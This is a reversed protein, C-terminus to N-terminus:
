TVVASRVSVPLDRYVVYHEGNSGDAEAKLRYRSGDIGGTGLAQVTLDAVAGTGLSVDGVVGTGYVVSDVSLTPNSLTATDPAKAAFDFTLLKIEDPTKKDFAMITVKDICCCGATCRTSISHLRM